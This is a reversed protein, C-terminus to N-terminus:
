CFMLLIPANTLTSGEDVSPCASSLHFKLLHVISVQGTFVDGYMCMFTILIFWCFHCSVVVTSFGYFQILFAGAAKTQSVGTQLDLRQLALPSLIRLLQRTEVTSQPAADLSWFLIVHNCRWGGQEYLSNSEPSSGTSGLSSSLGSWFVEGGGAPWDYAAVTARGEDGGADAVRMPVNARFMVHVRIFNLEM